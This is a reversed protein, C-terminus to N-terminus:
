KAPETATPPVLGNLRLYAAAQGDHHDMGSLPIIYGDREDRHVGRTSQRCSPQWGSHAAFDRAVRHSQPPVTRRRFAHTRRRGAVSGPMRM